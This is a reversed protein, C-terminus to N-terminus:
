GEEGGADGSELITLLFWTPKISESHLSRGGSVPIEAANRLGKQTGKKVIKMSNSFKKDSYEELSVRTSMSPVTLEWHGNGNYGSCLIM